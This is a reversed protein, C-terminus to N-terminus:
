SKNRVPRVTLIWLPSKFDRISLHWFSHAVRFSLKWVLSLRSVFMWAFPMPRVRFAIFSSLSPVKLKCEEKSQCYNTWNMWRFINALPQGSRVAGPILIFRAIFILLVGAGPEKFPLPETHPLVVRPKKPNFSLTLKKMWWNRVRMSLM